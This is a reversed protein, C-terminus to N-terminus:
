RRAVTPATKDVLEALKDMRRASPRGSVRPRLETQGAGIAVIRRRHDAPLRTRFRPM